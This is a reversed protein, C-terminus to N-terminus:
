VRVCDRSFEINTPPQTPWEMGELQSWHSMNHLSVMLEQHSMWPLSSLWKKPQDTDFTQFCGALYWL